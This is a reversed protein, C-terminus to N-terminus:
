PRRVRYLKYYADEYCLELPAFDPAKRDSTLVMHTIGRRIYEFTVPRLNGDANPAYCQQNWLLRQHWELLEVDKYPISKFDIYVPAGTFLRFRQLDVSIVQAQTTRRPPPTFNLSVAGRKGATLKPIEVPLLYVEGQAKHKRIHELLGMEHPDTRYGLDLYNIVAGGVVFAVLAVGLLGKIAYRGLVSLEPLRAAVGNILRTCVIATALPVLVVSSRWPFLLALADNKTALQVLTLLLSLGFSVFLIVFLRSGRVLCMALIIWGIQACAIGDLWRDVEAHHPIRFHALLRQSETFTQASSPVFSVLNYIVVPSVILLAWLGVLMGRRIRHERCLLYLYALTLFAATLLYTSHMVAALSSCTVALFPRELLFVCVSLLLLVGFVSPQLGAGLVYQNAVGAQFYWPYDVGFLQASGWRPLGSHLALILTAFGLCTLTTPTHGSLRVFIGLLSHFYIGLLIVFYLYFLSASYYRFTFAVLASFVPTPDTTNALWDEDLFGYGAWALGHLFYQNQNSYYLPPQTYAVGFLITWAVFSFVRGAIPLFTTVPVAIKKEESQRMESRDM